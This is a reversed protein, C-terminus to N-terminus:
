LLTSVIAALVLYFIVTRTVIESARYNEENTDDSIGRDLGLAAIGTESVLRNSDAEADLAYDQIPHFGKVFDGTLLFLLSTLRSPIWEIWHIVKQTLRHQEQLKNKQCYNGYQHCLRYFLAGFPGVFIFWAIPGFYRKQAETLIKQTAHRVLEDKELVAADDTESASGIQTLHLLAAETDDREMAAFYEAFSQELSNPGLSFFLLPIAVLLIILEYMFGDFPNTIAILAVLPTLLVIGVQWWSQYFEKDELWGKFFGIMKEFWDFKRYESGLKFHFEIALVILLAFLTM